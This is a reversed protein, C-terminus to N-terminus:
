SLAELATQSLSRLAHEAALRIQEVEADSAERPVLTPTGIAIVLTTFPKPLVFRDWSRFVWARRAAWSIPILPAGSLQALKVIGLKFVEAPGRPGDPTTAMTLRDRKVAKYM